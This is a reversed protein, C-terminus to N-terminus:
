VREQKMIRLTIQFTTLPILGQLTRPTGSTEESSTIISHIDTVDKDIDM